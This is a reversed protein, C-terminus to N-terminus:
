TYATLHCALRDSKTSVSKFNQTILKVAAGRELHRAHPFRQATVRPRHKRQWAMFPITFRQQRSVSTLMYCVCGYSCRRSLVNCYWTFNICSYIICRRKRQASSALLSFKTQSFSLAAGSYSSKADCACSCKLWATMIDSQEINPNRFTM